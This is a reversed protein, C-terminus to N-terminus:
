MPGNRRLIIKTTTSACELHTSAVVTGAAVDDFVIWINLFIHAVCPIGSKNTVLLPVGNVLESNWLERSSITDPM